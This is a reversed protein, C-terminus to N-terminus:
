ILEFGLHTTLYSVAVWALGLAIWLYARNPLSRHKWKLIYSSWTTTTPDDDFANRTDTGILIILLLAILSSLTEYFALWSM